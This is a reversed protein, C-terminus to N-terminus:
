TSWMPGMISPLTNKVVMLFTSNLFSMLWSPPGEAVISANLPFFQLPKHLAHQVIQSPYGLVARCEHACSGYPYQHTMYASLKPSLITTQLKTASIELKQPPTFSRPM